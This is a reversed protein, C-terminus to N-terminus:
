TIINARWETEYNVQLSPFNELTSYYNLYELMSIQISTILDPFIIIVCFIMTWLM